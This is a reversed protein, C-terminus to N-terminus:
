RKHIKEQIISWANRLDKGLHDQEGDLTFYLEAIARQLDILAESANEGFGFEDFEVAEAIVQGDESTFKVTIPSRVMLRGDRLSGLLIQDSTKLSPLFLEGRPLESILHQVGEDELPAAPPQSPQIKAQVIVM